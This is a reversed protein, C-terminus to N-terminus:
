RWHAHPLMKQVTEIAANTISVNKWVGRLVRRQMKLPLQNIYGLHSARRREAPPFVAPAPSSSVIILKIGGDCCFLHIAPGRRKVRRESSDLHLRAAFLNLKNM